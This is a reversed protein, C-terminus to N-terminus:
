DEIESRIEILREVLAPIENTVTDWLIGPNLDHYAHVLRHRMGIIDQWPIDPYQNRTQESINFAAEGVIEVARTLALWRIRDATIEERSLGAAISIADQGSEIMHAIRVLDHKRM